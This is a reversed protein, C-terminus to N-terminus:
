NTFVRYYISYNKTKPFSFFLQTVVINTKNQLM